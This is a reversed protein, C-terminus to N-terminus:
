SNKSLHLEKQAERRQREIKQTSAKIANEGNVGISQIHSTTRGGRYINKKLKWIKGNQVSNRRTKKKNKRMKIKYFINVNKKAFHYLIKAYSKARALEYFPILCLKNAGKISNKPLERRKVPNERYRRMGSHM